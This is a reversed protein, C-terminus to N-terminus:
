QAPGLVALVARGRAAVACAGRRAGAAAAPSAAPARVGGADLVSRGAGAELVRRDAGGRGAALLGGRARADRLRGRLLPAGRAPRGHPRRGAGVRGAARALRTGTPLGGRRQVGPLHHGVLPERRPPVAGLLEAAVVLVGRGRPRRGGGGRGRGPGGPCVSCIVEIATIGLGHVDLRTQYQRCFDQRSALYDAGYCHVMWSSAPWYRCDGGIDTVRWAGQEAGSAGPPAPDSVWSESAVALGLDCLWFSAASDAEEAGLHGPADSVLVNHSNVDRHWALPALLELTPGLQRILLDAMACGQRLHSTWPVSAARACAADSMGHLWLELQEGPLCSMATRVRWGDVHSDVTYSFCRPIRLEGADPRLLAERELALLLQVEFLSQRLAAHNRCHVDKLAVEGKDVHMDKLRLKQAPKAAERKLGGRPPFGPVPAAPQEMTSAAELTFQIAKMLTGGKRTRAQQQDGMAIFHRCLAAM